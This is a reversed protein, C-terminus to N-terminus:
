LKTVVSDDIEELQKSYKHILRDLHRAIDFDGNISYMFSRGFCDKVFVSAYGVRNSNLNTPQSEIIDDTRLLTYPDELNILYKETLKVNGSEYIAEENELNNVVSAIEEPSKFAKFIPDSSVNNKKRAEPSLMKRWIYIVDFSLIVGMGIAFIILTQESLGEKHYDNLFIQGIVISAVIWLVAAFYSIIFLGLFAFMHKISNRQKIQKTIEEPTVM